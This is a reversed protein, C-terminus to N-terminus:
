REQREAEEMAARQMVGHLDVSTMACYEVGYTHREDAMGAELLRQLVLRNFSGHGM